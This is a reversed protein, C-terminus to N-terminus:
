PTRGEKLAEIIALRHKLFALDESAMTVKYRATNLMAEIAEARTEHYSFGHSVRRRRNGNAGYVWVADAHDVEIETVDDEWSKVLWM